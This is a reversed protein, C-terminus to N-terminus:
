GEMNNDIYNNDSVDSQQFWNIKPMDGYIIDNNNINYSALYLKVEYETAFYQKFKALTDLPVNHINQYQTTITKIYVQYQMQLANAIYYIFTKPRGFVGTLCIDPHNPRTIVDRFINEILNIANNSRELTWNYQGCNCNFMDTEMTFIGHYNNKIYTSKGSGPLGRVILLRGNYKKSM